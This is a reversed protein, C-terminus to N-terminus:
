RDFHRQGRLRFRPWNRVQLPTLVKVTGYTM